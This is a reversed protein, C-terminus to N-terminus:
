EVNSDMSDARCFKRTLFDNAILRKRASPHTSCNSRSQMEGIGLRPCPEARNGVHLWVLEGPGPELARFRRRDPRRIREDPAALRQLDRQLRLRGALCEVLIHEVSRIIGLDPDEGLLEGLLFTAVDGLKVLPDRGVLCPQHLRSVGSAAGTM